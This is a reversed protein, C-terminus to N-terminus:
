RNYLLAQLFAQYIKSLIGFVGRYLKLLNMKFSTKVEIDVSHNFTEYSLM